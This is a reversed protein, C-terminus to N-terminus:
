SPKIRKVIEEHLAMQESDLLLYKKNEATQAKIALRELDNPTIVISSVAKWISLLTLTTIVSSIISGTGSALITFNVHAISNPLFEIATQHERQNKFFNELLEALLSIIVQISPHNLNYERSKTTAFFGTLIARAFTYQINNLIGTSTGFLGDVPLKYVSFLNRIGGIKLLDWALGSCNNINRNKFLISGILSWNFSPAENDFEDKIEQFAANIQAIDLSFLFTEYAPSQNNELTLDEQYSEVLTGAVGRFSKQQKTPAAFPWFSIYHQNTQLSVHGVIGNHLDRRWVRIHIKKSDEILLATRQLKKDQSHSTYKSIYDSVYGSIYSTLATALIFPM